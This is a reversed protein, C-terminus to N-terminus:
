LVVPTRASCRAQDVKVFICLLLHPQYVTKWTTRNQTKGESITTHFLLRHRRQELNMAGMELTM